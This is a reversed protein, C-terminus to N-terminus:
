RSRGFGEALIEEARRATDTRRGRGAAFWAPPWQGSPAQRLRRRLEDLVAPVQEDPLDEVLRRLEEREPSM